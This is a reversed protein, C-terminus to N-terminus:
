GALTQDGRFQILCRSALRSERRQSPCAPQPEPPELVPVSGVQKSSSCSFRVAGIELGIGPTIGHPSSDDLTLYSTYKFDPQYVTTPCTGNCTYLPDNTWVALM